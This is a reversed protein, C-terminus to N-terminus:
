VDLYSACINLLIDSMCCFVDKLRCVAQRSKLSCTAKLQCQARVHLGWSSRPHPLVLVQWQPM